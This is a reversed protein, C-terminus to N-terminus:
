SYPRRPQLTMYNPSLKVNRFFIDGGDERYFFVDLLIGVSASLLSMQALQGQKRNRRAEQKAYEEVRFIFALDESSASKESVCQSANYLSQV